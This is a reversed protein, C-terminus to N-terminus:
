VGAEAIKVSIIEDQPFKNPDVLTVLAGKEFPELEEGALAELLLTPLPSVYNGPEEVQGQWAAGDRMHGFVPHPQLLRATFWGGFDDNRWRILDGAKWPTDLAPATTPDFSGDVSPQTATM